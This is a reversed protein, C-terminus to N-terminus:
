CWRPTPGIDAIARAPAWAWARDALLYWVRSDYVDQGLTRCFIWVIEGPRAIWLVRGGRDPRSRLAVGRRAVVLGRSFRPGRDGHAGVHRAAAKRADASPSSSSSGPTGGRGDDAVAPAVAATTLLAGTAAALALRILPSRLSSM